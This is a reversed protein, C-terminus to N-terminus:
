FSGVCGVSGYVEIIPYITILGNTSHFILVIWCFFLTPDLTPDLVM